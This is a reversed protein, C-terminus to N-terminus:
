RPRLAQALLAEGFRHRLQYRHDTAEEIARGAENASLTGLVQILGAILLYAGLKGWDEPNNTPDTTSLGALGQLQALFVVGIIYTARLPRHRAEAAEAVRELAMLPIALFAAQLAIGVARALPGDADAVLTSGVFWVGGLGVLLSGGAVIPNRRQGTARRVNITALVIWAVAIPIVAIAVWREIERLMDFIDWTRDVDTSLVGSDRDQQWLLLMLVSGLITLLCIVSLLTCMVLRLLSPGPMPELATTLDGHQRSGALRERISPKTPKEDTPVVTGPAPTITTRTITRRAQDQGPTSAGPVPQQGSDNTVVGSGAV